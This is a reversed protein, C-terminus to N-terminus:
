QDVLIDQYFYYDVGGYTGDYVCSENYIGDIGEGESNPIICGTTGVTDAEWSDINDIGYVYNCYDTNTTDYCARQSPSCLMADSDYFFGNPCWHADSCTFTYTSYTITEDEDYCNSDYVCDTTSDCCGSTGDSSCESFSIFNENIDPIYEGCTMEISNDCGSKCCRSYQANTSTTDCPYWASGSTDSMRGVCYTEPPCMSSSFGSWIVDEETTCNLEDYCLYYSSNLALETSIGGYTNNIDGTATDTYYFVLNEQSANCQHWNSTRVTGHTWEVCDVNDYNANYPLVISYDLLSVTDISSVSSIDTYLSNLYWDDNVGSPSLEETSVTNNVYCYLKNKTVLNDSICDSLDKVYREAAPYDDGCYYTTTWPWTFAGTLDTNKGVVLVSSALILLFAGIIMVNKAYSWQHDIYKFYKNMDEPKYGNVYMKSRIDEDEFGKKRQRLIYRIVDKKATM